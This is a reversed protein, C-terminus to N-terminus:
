NEPFLQSASDLEQNQIDAKPKTMKKIEDEQKKTGKILNKLETPTFNKLRMKSKRTEIEEQMGAPLSESKDLIKVGSQAMLIDFANRFNIHYDLEALLNVINEREEPDMKEAFEYTTIKKLSALIPALSEPSVIYFSYGQEYFHLKKLTSIAETPVVFFVMPYIKNEKKIKEVTSKVQTNMYIQLNDSRSIKADFIIYKDLFEIMFDPKLKSDIDEPLNENNFNLFNHEPLSCLESLKSIVTNEHDNWMRDREALERATKEEDEKIIRQREEELSKRAINLQDIKEQFEKEKRAQESEHKTKQSRLEDREQALASIREEKKTIDIFMTKNKGAFEDREKTTNKLENDLKAIQENKRELDQKLNNNEAKLLGVNEDEPKKQEELKRIIFYFGGIFVLILLGLLFEQM